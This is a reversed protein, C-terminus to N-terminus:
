PTDGGALVKPLSFRMCVGQELPEVWFRGGHREVIRKAITLGIGTGPIDEEHHLRKFLVFVRYASEGPIGVGRDRVSVSLFGAAEDRAAITVEPPADGAYKISNDILNQFVQRLQDPDGFVEPLHGVEIRAGSERIAVDLDALVDRVVDQLDIPQLPQGRSGIRSYRLLADLLAKMRLTGSTMYEIYERGSDDVVDAYREAFLQAFSAVMRLPQKLDHSAVYAFQELDRNSRELARTRDRVRAELSENLAQLEFELAKRESIDEVVSIFQRPSGDAARLLSVTLNAWLLSGDKRFYRKEMSYRERTGDLVQQVLDLDAALDDPHTLDQFTLGLLEASSYGLMESLRRNIRIWSGDLDVHAIGVAAHEFTAQAEGESWAPGDLLRQNRDM